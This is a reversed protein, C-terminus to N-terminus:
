AARPHDDMFHVMKALCHEDADFYMDTNLLLVYRADSGGLVRNLNHAYTCATPNKIIKTHRVAHASDDVGDTSANDVLLLRMAVGPASCALSTVLPTMFHREGSYIVGVDLDFAPLSM